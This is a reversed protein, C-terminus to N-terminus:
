VSQNLTSSPRPPTPSCASVRSRRFATRDGKPGYWGARGSISFYQMNELLFGLDMYYNVGVAWTAKYTTNGDVSCTVGPLGRAFASGSQNFGNHNLYEWYVLPTVNLYGKYPLDFALQLGAVV